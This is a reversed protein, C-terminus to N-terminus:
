WKTIDKLKYSKVKNADGNAFFCTATFKWKGNAEMGSNNGLCTDLMNGDADYAYFEVSVYSYDKDTNNQITGTIEYSYNNDVRGSHGDLLSLDEVKETNGTPKEKESDSGSSGFAIIGILVVIVIIWIPMGQKARCHPCVKAAKNIEEKCKKCQKTKTTKPQVNNVPIEAPQVLNPQVNNAPVEAPQVINPQVNNAPVETPQINNMENEM